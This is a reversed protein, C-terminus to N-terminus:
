RVDHQLILKIHTRDQLELNFDQKVRQRIFPLTYHEMFIPEWEAPIKALLDELNLPLYNERVERAWNTKYRYKLLFHVLSWNESLNGWHQEFESIMAQDYRQRIKAVSLSDSQRSTTRSVCMDRIVVTGFTEPDFIDGWFAEVEQQSLYNYVEHILSNCVVAARRPAQERVLRKVEQWDSTFAVGPLNERAKRLHEEGLDYGIYTKEPFLRRMFDITAGDACGYDVYVDADCKDLFFIKDILSMRM